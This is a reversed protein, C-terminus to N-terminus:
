NKTGPRRNVIKRLNLLGLGRPQESTVEATQTTDEEKVDVESENTGEKASNDSDSDASEDEAAAETTSTVGFKRKSILPNGKRNVVPPSTTKKAKSDTNIQIRPRSKLKNLNNQTTTELDSENESASKNAENNEDIKQRSQLPSTRVKQGPLLRNPSRNINLRSTPRPVISSTREVPKEEKEEVLETVDNSETTSATTQGNRGRNRLSFQPRAKLLRSTTSSETDASKETTTQASKNIASFRNRPKLGARSPIPAESKEVSEKVEEPASTASTKTARSGSNRSFSSSPRNFRNKPTSAETATKSAETSSSSPSKSQFKFRNRGATLGGRGRPAETTTTTTPAQTTTTTTTPAPTTTTPAATSTVEVESVTTLEEDAITTVETDTKSKKDDEKANENALIAYLDIAVKEMLPTTDDDDADLSSETTSSAYEVSSRSVSEFLESKSLETEIIRPGAKSNKDKEDTVFSHSDVLELSPRKVHQKKGTEPAVDAQSASKARQPFRTVQPLREEVVDEVVPAPLVQARAKGRSQIENREPVTTAPGREREIASYRSKGSPAQTSPAATSSPGKRSGIIVDDDGPNKEEDDYYYYVYEYEYDQGNPGKKIQIRSTQKNESGAEELISFDDILGENISQAVTQTTLIPKVTTTLPEIVYKEYESLRKAEINNKIDAAILEGLQEDLEPKEKSRMAHHLDHQKLAEDSIRHSTQFEESQQIKHSTEFPHEASNVDGSSLKVSTETSTSQTSKRNVELTEAESALSASICLLSCLFIFRLQHMM